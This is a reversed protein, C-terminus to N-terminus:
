WRNGGGMGGGMGGFTGNSTVISSVTIQESVDGATLTYTGETMEPCSFVVSQFDKEPTFSLIVNNSSDTIKVETGGSVTSSLNHLVSYQTSNEEGFGEAMGISGCAVIKGGTIWASAGDGYDIAGNGGNTPGSVYIEGGEVILNGNSDVGDGSANIKVVGGSITLLYNSSNQNFNDMGMRDQSGTDSGGGSNIGDDSATVDIEGGQIAITVGELGEYSKEVTIKGDTILLANDAHTGDDGSSLTLEGGLYSINGNSHVADDSADIKITGGRVAIDGDAKLGKASDSEEDTTTETTDTTAASTQVVMNDKIMGNGAAQPNEGMDPPTQMDGRNGGRGQMQMDDPLNENGQWSGWNENPQGEATMSANSSGGGTTIDFNGGDVLLTTAAEIGDNGADLTFSGDNIYIYGRGEDETNSSKIANSGSTVNFTGQKIKVCDKGYIGGSASTVSYEGGTIILNDKSVIGHKYNATVSLKGEGNLTLDAKSFIAGDIGSEDESLNYTSGDTLSNETGENLTVVVKDAEVIYLPANDSCTIDAGNMVLQVEDNKGVDVIIRGDTLTGTIEYVGAQSITIVGDDVAAGKDSFEASTGNLTIKVAKSQDYGYDLDEAKFSTDIGMFTDSDDSTVADASSQSQQVPQSSSDGSRFVSKNNCGALSMVAILAVAFAFQKKLKKRM